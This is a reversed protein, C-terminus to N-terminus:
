FRWGLNLSVLNADTKYTGNFNDLNQGATSRKKFHLVFETVDVVFPGRHYGVGFSAGIRDSDPLLPSVVNTPQPNKDYLTGLRIDWDETVPHNAGLRYSFSNKWNQPRTFNFAPTNNFNVTLAKFKSWDNHVIDAEIDWNTIVSTAVGLYAFHPMPVSTTVGQTPPLQTSVIADFQANGTPIQTITATGKFDITIPARYSAGIRWTPTPKFLVGVNWGWKDDWDSALYSNAVDSFRGTFPNLAGSNRALIVKARRYEPGGGIALRGDSTQWALAPEVSVVKINADSSVFRGIWPEQWNTRLGFPTFVGVGFTMNTGIPVVVYANPPVFTHARYKSSNTGATFLDNPDGIFQNQFNIATGGAMVEMRRQQALGAVNFFIASPDDATAAFAGGMAVAKAGMEFLAFGSGFAASTILFTALLILLRFRSRTARL